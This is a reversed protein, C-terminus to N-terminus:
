VAERILQTTRRVCNRCEDRASRSHRLEDHDPMLDSSMAEVRSCAVTLNSISPDSTIQSKQTDLSGEVFLM